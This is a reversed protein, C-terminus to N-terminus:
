IEFPNKDLYNDIIFNKSYNNLAKNKSKENIYDNRSNLFNNIQTKYNRLDHPSLQGPFEEFFRDELKNIMSFLQNGGTNILKKIEDSYNSYFDSIGSGTNSSVLDNFNNIITTLYDSNGSSKENNKPFEESRDEKESEVYKVCDTIKRINQSQFANRIGTLIQERSLGKEIWGSIIHYDM